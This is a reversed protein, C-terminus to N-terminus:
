SSHSGIVFIFILPLSVKESSFIKSVFSKTPPTTKTTLFCETATKVLLDQRCAQFYLWSWFKPVLVAGRHSAVDARDFHRYFNQGAADDLQHQPVQQLDPGHPRHTGEGPGPGDPWFNASGNCLGPGNAPQQHLGRFAICHTFLM